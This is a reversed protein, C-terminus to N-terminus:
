DWALQTIIATSINLFSSGVQPHRGQSHHRRQYPGQFAETQVSSGRCRHSWRPRRPRSERNQTEIKRIIELLFFINKDFHM